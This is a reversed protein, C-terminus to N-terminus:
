LLNLTKTDFAVIPGEFLKFNRFNLGTNLYFLINSPDCVFMADLDGPQGFSKAENQRFSTGLGLFSQFIFFAGLTCFKLWIIKSTECVSLCVYM